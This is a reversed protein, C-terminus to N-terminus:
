GALPQQEAEAENARTKHKTQETSTAKRFDERGKESTYIFNM